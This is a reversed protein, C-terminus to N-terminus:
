CDAVNRAVGALSDSKFRGAMGRGSEVMTACSRTSVGRAADPHAVSSPRRCRARRAPPTAPSARRRCSDPPPMATWDGTRRSRANPPMCRGARPKRRPGGRLRRRGDRCRPWRREPMGGAATRGRPDHPRRRRGHRPFRDHRGRRADADHPALARAPRGGPRRLRPHTSRRRMRRRREGGRRRDRVGRLARKRRRARRWRRRRTPRAVSPAPAPCSAARPSGASSRRACRWRSTCCGTRLEDPSCVSCENARALEGVRKGHARCAALLADASAFPYPVRPGSRGTEAEQEDLVGGGADTFYLRSALPGGSPDFADFRLANGEYALAQGVHFRLNRGPDFDIADHGGLKLGDDAVRELRYATTVADSRETPDGALGAVVAADTGSERGTCALAGFLHSM